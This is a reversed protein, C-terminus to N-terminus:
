EDLMRRLREKARYLWSAVSGESAGILEAIERYSLEQEYRLALLARERATLGRLAEGVRQRREETLITVLPDLDPDGADHALDNFPVVAPQHRKWQDRLQNTAIRRLWNFFREGDRLRDISEFAKGWTTQALDEALGPDMTLAGCLRLLREGYRTVLADFARADSRRAREVLDKDSLTGLEGVSLLTM